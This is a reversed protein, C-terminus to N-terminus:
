RGRSAEKALKTGTKSAKMAALRADVQAPSKLARVEARIEGLEREQARKQRHLAEAEKAYAAAAGRMAATVVCLALLSLVLGVTWFKARSGDSGVAVM